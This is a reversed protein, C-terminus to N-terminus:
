AVGRRGGQNARRCRLTGRIAIFVPPTLRSKRYSAREPGMQRLAGDAAPM